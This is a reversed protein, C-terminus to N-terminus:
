ALEDLLAKADKLVPADLGETFWSYIPTLLDHAEACKGQDRWLRALSTTARLEFLKASQRRAVVLAQHYSQEAAARDGTATLLDGRVRYLEVEDRRVDTAEIVQAAEALCNLGEAPRGLRRHAEALATLTWPTDIVAATARFMSLGRTILTLGDWARGLATLAEGRRSTGYALWFPFGHEDSLAAMEEAHRHAEHPSGTTLEFFTAWGLVYALTHVHGVRRVERLAENIRSRGQDIYGLSVLTPALYALTQAYPDSPAVAACFARHAPDNLGRCQEFLARAAVFEGLAFRVQGQELHGLLRLAVNDQAEGIQEM